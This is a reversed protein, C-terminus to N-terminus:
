ALSALEAQTGQGYTVCCAFSHSREMFDIRLVSSKSDDGVCEGDRVFINGESKSM